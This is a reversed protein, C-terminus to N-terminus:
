AAGAGSRDEREFWLHVSQGCHPCAQTWSCGRGGAKAAIVVEGIRGLRHPDAGSQKLAEWDDEAEAVRVGFAALSKTLAARMEEDSALGGSAAGDAEAREDMQAIRIAEAVTVKPLACAESDLWDDPDFTAVMASALLEPARARCAAVAAKCAAALCPDKRRRRRVAEYSIGVAKSARRLNGCEALEALFAEAKRKGWREGNARRVQGGCVVFDEGLEGRPRPEGFATSPDAEIAEIRQQEDAKKRAAHAALAAEWQGAFEAHTRRRLYATTHDVGADEAATRVAGTRELARLFPVVWRPPRRGGTLLPVGRRGGGRSRRFQGRRVPGHEGAR